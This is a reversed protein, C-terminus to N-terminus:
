RRAILLRRQRKKRGGDYTEPDFGYVPRGIRKLAHVVDLVTITKRRAHECYTVCDNVIRELYTRLVGRMEEYIMASIRKVGGRRALRRLSPKTIGQINDRLIKRHRKALGVGLGKGGKGRGPGYGGSPREDATTTVDERGRSVSSSGNGRANYSDKDRVVAPTPTDFSLGRRAIDQLNRREVQERIAGSRSSEPRVAVPSSSSSTSSVTLRQQELERVLQQEDDAISTRNSRASVSSSPPRVSSPKSIPRSSSSSNSIYNSPHLRRQQAPTTPNRPIPSVNLPAVRRQAPVSGTPRSSSPIQASAPSPTAKASSSPFPKAVTQSGRNANRSQSTLPSSLPLGGSMFLRGQAPKKKSPPPMGFPM